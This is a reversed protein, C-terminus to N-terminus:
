MYIEAYEISDDHSTQSDTESDTYIHTDDNENNYDEYSNNIDRNCYVCSKEDKYVYNLTKMHKHVKLSPIHTKNKEYEYVKKNLEHVTNQLKFIEFKFDKEKNSIENKNVENKIPDKDNTKKKIKITDLTVPRKEVKVFEYATKKLPPFENHKDFYNLEYTFDNARCRILRPRELVEYQNFESKSSSNIDGPTNNPKRTQHPLTNIPFKIFDSMKVHSRKSSRKTKQKKCYSTTHGKENCNHCQINMLIPCTVNGNYRIAHSTYEEPSKKADFCIKCFM